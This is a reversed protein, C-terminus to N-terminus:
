DEILRKNRTRYNKYSRQNIYDDSTRVIEEHSNTGNIPIDYFVNRYFNGIQYDNVNKKTKVLDDFDIANIGGQSYNKNSNVVKTLKIIMPENSSYGPNGSM